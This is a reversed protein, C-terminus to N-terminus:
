FMIWEQILKERLGLKAEIRHILSVESDDYTQYQINKNIINKLIKTIMKRTEQVGGHGIDMLKRTLNSNKIGEGHIELTDLDVFITDLPLYLKKHTLFKKPLHDIGVINENGDLEECHSTICHYKLITAPILQLIGVVFELRKKHNPHFIIINDGGLLSYLITSAKELGFIKVLSIEKIYYQYEVLKYKDGRALHSIAKEHLLPVFPEWIIKELNTLLVMIKFKSPNEMIFYSVGIFKGYIRIRTSEGPCAGQPTFSTLIKVVESKSQNTTTEIDEYGNARTFTSTIIHYKIPIRSLM